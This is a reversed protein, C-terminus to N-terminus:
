IIERIALVEGNAGDILLAKLLDKGGALGVYWYAKENKVIIRMHIEACFNNESDSFAKILEPQTKQLSSLADIYTLTGKPIISKMNVSQSIDGCCIEVDFEDLNFNEIEFTAILSHTVPNLKFNSSYKQGDFNLNATYSAQSTEKDLLKLTLVQALDGVKGDNVYPTEIFGYGGKLNFDQSQGLYAKSRLESVYTELGAKNSCASFTILSLLSICLVIFKKM